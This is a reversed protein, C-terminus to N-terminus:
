IIVMIILDLKQTTIDLITLLDSFIKADVPKELYLDPAEDAKMFENMVTFPTQTMFVICPRLPIDSQTEQNRKIYLQKILESCELGNPEPMNIDLILLSIPQVVDEFDLFQSNLFSEVFKVAEDGNSFIKLYSSLGLDQLM